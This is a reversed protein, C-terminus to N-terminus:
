KKSCFSHVVDVFPAKMSSKWSSPTFYFGLAGLGVLTGLCINRVMKEQKEARHVAEHYPITNFAVMSYLPIFSQPFLRYLWSEVKKQLLYMSSATNSAMDHYHELCLDALANTAPIRETAYHTTANHFQIDRKEREATHLEQQISDCLLCADQFAANMGQGFFPVIAHAADGIVVTRGFTWPDLKLTLLSGVPNEQFDKVATPMKKLADPFHKQFYKLIAAEDSVNVSDFGYEGKFPAFLTVTFSKDPNPLAILMFDGRPWIHLGEYEKLAFEPQGTTPNVVPPITLEKYGHRIFQRSFNIRGQKLMSERVASFAGDAGVVLDFQKVEEDGKPTQITCKGSRDVNTLSFGFFFQVQGSSVFHKRMYDKISDNLGNRSVSYLTQDDKGYQQLNQTGDLSHIVRKPMRIATKMVEDVLSLRRLAALGRESLALNISRRVANAANGFESSPKDVNDAPNEYRKEYVSVKFGMDALLSATMTGSLGAGIVAVSKTSALAHTASRNAASKSAM